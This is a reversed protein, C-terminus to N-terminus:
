EVSITAHAEWLGSHLAKYRATKKARPSTHPGNRTGWFLRHDFDCHRKVRSRELATDYPRGAVYDPVIKNRERPPLSLSTAHSRAQAETLGMDEAIGSHHQYAFWRRAVEESLEDTWDMRRSRPQTTAMEASQKLRRGGRGDADVASAAESAAFAIGAGAVSQTRIDEVPVALIVSFGPAVAEVVATVPVTSVPTNRSVASPDPAPESVVETVTEVIAPSATTRDVRKTSDIVKTLDRRNRRFLGVRSAKSRVSGPTRGLAEGIAATCLNATWLEILLRVQEDVWPHKGSSRRMPRDPPTPLDLRVLYFNLAETTLALFRCIAERVLGVRVMGCLVRDFTNIQLGQPDNWREVALPAGRPRSALTSGGRGEATTQM